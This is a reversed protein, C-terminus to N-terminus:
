TSPAILQKKSPALDESGIKLHQHLQKKEAEPIDRKL